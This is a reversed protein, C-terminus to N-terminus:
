LADPQEPDLPSDPHGVDLLCFDKALILKFDEVPHVQISDLVHDAIALPEVEV